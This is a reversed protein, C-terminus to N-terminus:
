SRRGLGENVKHLYFLEHREVQQRAGSSSVMARGAAEAMGPVTSAVTAAVQGVDTAAALGVFVGGAYGLYKAVDQLAHRALERVLAHDHLRETIEDIAPAVSSEWLQEVEFELERGVAQPLAVSFQSIAARYRRLPADLEVRLDLLEDMRAESFAPLRAVFGAGAAAKGALRLGIQDPAVIGENLMSQILDGSDEDFLLRTRRDSMRSEIQGIWGAIERDSTMAGSVAAAVASEMGVGLDAVRLIGSELAPRLEEAGTMLLIEDQAPHLLEHAKEIFEFISEGEARLEAPITAGSRVLADIQPLFRRVEPPVLAGGNAVEALRVLELLTLAKSGPALGISHVMSAALGLLEVQDAYLLAAKVLQVDGRLTSKGDQVQPSTM